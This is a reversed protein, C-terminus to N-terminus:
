KRFHAIIKEALETGVREQAEKTSAGIHPSLSVRPHRLLRDDKPPESAFVDIGAFAVQGNDLSKLLAEEDVAGGRACNLLCIGKRMMSFENAGIVQQSGPSHISIVDSKELLQQLSSSTLEIRIPSGHYVPHIAFELEASECNPDFYLVEMGNGIALRALEQGIRGFGIIGMKKGQLEFGSSATKKISNFEQMGNEPMDRNCLPLYRALSYLHAMVLEAVSRSASEPTNIVPVGLERARATDINDLGVGARAVLRLNGAELVSANVRTASRVVLVDFASIKQSLEEQPIKNTEIEFGAAELMAKGAADIGDNALIKM